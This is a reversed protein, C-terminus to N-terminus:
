LDEKKITELAHSAVSQPMYDGPESKAIIRLTEVLWEPIREKELEARMRSVQESLPVDGGDPPDMFEVSGIADSIANLETRCDHYAKATDCIRNTWDEDIGFDFQLREKRYMEIQAKSATDSM